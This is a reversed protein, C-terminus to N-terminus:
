EIRQNCGTVKPKAYKGKNPPQNLDLTSVSYKKAMRKFERERDM